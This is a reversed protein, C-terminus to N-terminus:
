KMLIQNFNTPLVSIDSCLPILWKNRPICNIPIRDCDVIQYTPDDKLHNFNDVMVRYVLMNWQRQSDKLAAVLVWDSPEIMLQTDIFVKKSLHIDINVEKNDASYLPAILKDQETKQLLVHKFVPDFIMLECYTEKFKM